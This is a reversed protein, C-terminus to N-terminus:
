KFLDPYSIEGAAVLISGYYMSTSYAFSPISQAFGFTVGRVQSNKRSKRYNNLLFFLSSLFMLWYSIVNNSDLNM